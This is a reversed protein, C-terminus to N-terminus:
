YGGGNLWVGHGLTLDPGLVGLKHLHKVATTGTRRQAYEM